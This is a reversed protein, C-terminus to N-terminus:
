SESITKLESFSHSDLFSIVSMCNDYLFHGKFKGEVEGLYYKKLEDYNPNKNLRASILGKIIHQGLDDLEPVREKSNSNLLVDVDATTQYRNFFPQACETFFKSFIDIWERIDEDSEIKFRYNIDKFLQDKPINLTSPSIGLITSEVKQIKLISLSGFVGTKFEDIYNEVGYGITYIINERESIFTCGQFDSKSTYRKHKLLNSFEKKLKQKVEKYDM